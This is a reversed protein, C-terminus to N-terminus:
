CSRAEFKFSLLPNIIYIPTSYVKLMYLARVNTGLVFFFFILFAPLTSSSLFGSHKSNEEGFKLVYVNKYTRM